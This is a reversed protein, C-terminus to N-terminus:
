IGASTYHIQRYMIHHICALSCCTSLYGSYISPEQAIKMLQIVMTHFVIWPPLGCEFWGENKEEMNEGSAVGAPIRAGM